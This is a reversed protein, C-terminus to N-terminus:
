AQRNVSPPGVASGLGLGVGVGVGAVVVILEFHLTLRRVFAEVLPVRSAVIAAPM